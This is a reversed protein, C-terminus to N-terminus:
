HAPISGAQMQCADSLNASKANRQVAPVFCVLAHSVVDVSVSAQMAVGTM